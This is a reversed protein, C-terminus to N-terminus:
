KLNFNNIYFERAEKSLEANKSKLLNDLDEVTKLNESEEKSFSVVVKREFREPHNKIEDLIYGDKRVIIESIRDKDIKLDEKNKRNIILSNIAKELQLNLWQIKNLIEHHHRMIRVHEGYEETKKEVDCIVQLPIDVLEVQNEIPFSIITILIFKKYYNSDDLPLYNINANTIKLNEM